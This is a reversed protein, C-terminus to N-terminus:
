AKNTWPKKTQNTTTKNTQTTKHNKQPANQNHNTTINHPPCRPPTQKTKNEILTLWCKAFSQSWPHCCLVLQEKHMECASELKLGSRPKWRELLGAWNKSFHFQFIVWSGPTIKIWVASCWSFSCLLIQSAWEPILGISTLSRWPLWLPEKM